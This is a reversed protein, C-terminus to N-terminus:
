PAPFRRMIQAVIRQLARRHETTTHATNLVKHGMAHWLPDYEPTFAGIHLTGESFYIVEEAPTFLELRVPVEGDAFRWRLGYTLERYRTDLYKPPAIITAVSESITLQFALIIAGGDDDARTYGLSVMAKDMEQQILVNFGSDVREGPVAAQLLEPQWRYTSFQSLPVADPISVESVHLRSACATLLSLAALTFGVFLVRWHLNM